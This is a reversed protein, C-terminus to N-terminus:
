AVGDDLDAITCPAPLRMPLTVVNDVFPVMQGEEVLLTDGGNDLDVKWAVCRLRGRVHDRGNFRQVLVVDGENFNPRRDHQM